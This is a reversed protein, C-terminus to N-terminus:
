PSFAYAHAQQPRDYLTVFVEVGAGVAAPDVGISLHEFRDVIMVGTVDPVRRDSRNPLGNRPSFALEVTVATGNEVLVSYWPEGEQGKIEIPNDTATILLRRRRTRLPEAVQRRLRVLEAAIRELMESVLLQDVEPVTESM